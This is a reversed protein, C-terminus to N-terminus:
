EMWAEVAENIFEEPDEVKGKKLIEKVKNLAENITKAAELKAELNMILTQM